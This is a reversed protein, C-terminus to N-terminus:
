PAAFVGPRGWLRMQELIWRQRARLRPGPRAVDFVRPNPLAAALLAAEERNLAVAPKAFYHRAAAEAGYIGDGLEVVNLYVTLIRQKPWLVEIWVTFWAELAKRLWTRSPWLFVNKATQQSITSAGRVRRSSQNHRLASRIAALDFGHHELFRQDEACVVALQLAPSIRDLKRWRRDVRVARREDRAQEVARLVMLPTAPVPVIRYVLVAGVSAAVLGLVLRALLGAGRRM